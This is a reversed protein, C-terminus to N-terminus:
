NGIPRTQDASGKQQVLKQKILELAKKKATNSRVSLQFEKAIEVMEDKSLTKDLVDCLEDISGYGVYDEHVKEYLENLQRILQQLKAPDATAKAAPTSKKKATTSPLIGTDHYEKAQKLFLNFTAIDFATFPELADCTQALLQNTTKNTGAAAAFQNASLLFTQLDNVTM